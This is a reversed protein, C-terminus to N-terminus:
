RHRRQPERDHPLEHLQHARQGRGRGVDPARAEADASEGERGRDRRARRLQVRFGLHTPQGGADLRRTVVPGPRRRLQLARHGRCRAALQASRLRRAAGRGVRRQGDRPVASRPARGLREGQRPAQPVRVDPAARLDVDVRHQLQDLEGDGRRVGRRTRARAIAVDDIHTSKRPDKGRHRWARSCRRSTPGCSLPGSRSGPAAARRDRRAAGTVIATRIADNADRSM